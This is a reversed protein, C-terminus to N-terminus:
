FWKRHKFYLVLGSVVLVCLGVLAPYGYRWHLEPMNVFNMGYWGALLTLPLFVVTVITFLKMLDSQQISLQSQYAERLQCVVDQLNQVTGLYRYTRNSLIVMRSQATHSLLKNDNAAAEDFIAGLQEYYHKIRLLERRWQAIQQLSDLQKGSLIDTEGENVRAEFRDLYKMDGSLLRIFFRYLLQENSQNEDAILEGVIKQVRQEAAEDECFFFLDEKDHYLLIESSETRESQVDYWDFAMINFNEFSEFCEIQGENIYNFVEPHMYGAAETMRRFSLVRQM